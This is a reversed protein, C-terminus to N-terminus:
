RSVQLRAFLKPSGANIVPSHVIIFEYGANAPDDTRPPRETFQDNQWGGEGLSPSSELAFFLTPDDKRLRFVVAILEEASEEILSLQFAAPDLSSDRPDTGQAFELLNLRGDSDPDAMEGWITAEHAPNGLEEASFHNTAWSAYPSAVVPRSLAIGWAGTLGSNVLTSVSGSGDLAATNIEDTTTDTWFMKGSGPDLCLGHPRGLSDAAGSFLITGSGVGELARSRIQSSNRDCWYLTGDALELDRVRSQGAIFNTRNTGEITSRHIITSNFDSWYLFGNAPDIALYYPRNLGEIVIEAISPPDLNARCIQHLNEEAWYIVRNELDLAIDTPDPVASLFVQVNTGDCNASFISGDPTHSAWYITNNATDVAIGRPDSRNSLLTVRNGGDLDSAEIKGADKDTWFLRANGSDGMANPPLGVVTALFLVALFLTRHNNM